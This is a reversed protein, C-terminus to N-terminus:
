ATDFHAWEICLETRTAHRGTSRLAQAVGDHFICDNISLSFWHNMNHDLVSRRRLHHIEMERMVGMCGPFIM